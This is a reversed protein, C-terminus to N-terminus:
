REGAPLARREEVTPRGALQAAQAQVVVAGVHGAADQLAQGEGDQVAQLRDAVDLLEGQAAPPARLSSHLWSM